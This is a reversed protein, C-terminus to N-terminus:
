KKKLAKIEHVADKPVNNLKNLFNWTETCAEEITMGVKVTFSIKTNSEGIIMSLTNAEKKRKTSIAVSTIKPETWTLLVIKCKCEKILEKKKRPSLECDLYITKTKEDVYWSPGDDHHSDFALSFRVHGFQELNLPGIKTKARDIERKDANFEGGFHGIPQAGYHLGCCVGCDLSEGEFDGKPNFSPHKKCRM